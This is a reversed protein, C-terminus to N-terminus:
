SPRVLIILGQFGGTLSDQLIHTITGIALTGSISNQATTEAVNLHNYSGAHLKVIEGSATLASGFEDNEADFRSATIKVSNDKDTVWNHVRTYTGAANRGM